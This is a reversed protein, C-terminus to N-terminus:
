DEPVMKKITSKRYNDKGRKIESHKKNSNSNNVSTCTPSLRLEDTRLRKQIGLWINRPDYGAKSSINLKYNLHSSM